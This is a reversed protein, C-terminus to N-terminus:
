NFYFINISILASFFYLSPLLYRHHHCHAPEDQTTAGIEKGFDFETGTVWNTTIVM